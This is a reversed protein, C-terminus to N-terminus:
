EMGYLPPSIGIHQNREEKGALFCPEETNEERCSHSEPRKKTKTKTSKVHRGSRLSHYHTVLRGRKVVLLNHPSLAFARLKNELDQDERM